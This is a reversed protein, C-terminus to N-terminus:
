GYIGGKRDLLEAISSPVCTLAEAELLSKFKEEDYLRRLAEVIFLLQNNVFEAKRMLAQKRNVEKQYIHLVDRGSLGKSARDKSHTRGGSKLQKGQRQRTEVLQKARIFKRGRLAKSEYADQLARQENGPSAAIKVAIDLAMQGKEVASLLREEGLKILKVIPKVYALTLGTKNAIEVPGYGKDILLEIGKLLDISTHHRRALNEVLSMTLADRETADIVIAPIYTQGCALFAEMRGQGCVLNYKKKNAKSSLTVTIPRKLGVNTINDTIGKFVSQNRVRPNLVHIEEILINQIESNEGSSNM